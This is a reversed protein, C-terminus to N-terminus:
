TCAIEKVGKKGEETRGQRPRMADVGLGVVMM